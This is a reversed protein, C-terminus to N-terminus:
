REARQPALQGWAYLDGLAYNNTWTEDLVEALPVPQPRAEPTIVYVQDEHGKFLNLVVPSHSTILVSLGHTDARERMAEIVVEIAHPHLHTELEDFTVCHGEGRSAVATLLLLAQLLGDAALEPPIVAEDGDQERRIVGISPVFQLDVIQGPFARKAHRLVWDYREREARTSAWTDLLGWLNRGTIKLVSQAPGRQWPARLADLSNFYFISNSLVRTFLPELWDPSQEDWLIRACCRTDGGTRARQNDGFRWTLEGPVSSLVTVGDRTLTEGYGTVGRSTTQLRVTWALPGVVLSLQVPEEAPADIRRVLMPSTSQLAFELDRFFLRGLFELARLLTTKGAGNPACVLCVGDPTWEVQELVRFNRARLTWPHESM